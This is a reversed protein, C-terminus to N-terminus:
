NGGAGSGDKCEGMSFQIQIPIITTPTITAPIMPRKVPSFPITSPINAATFVPTTPMTMGVLAIIINKRPIMRRASVEPM